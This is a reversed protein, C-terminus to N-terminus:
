KQLFSPPATRLSSESLLAGKLSVSGSGRTVNLFLREPEVRFIMDKDSLDLDVGPAPLDYILVIPVPLDGSCHKKSFSIFVDPYCKAISM